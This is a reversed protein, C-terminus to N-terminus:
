VRVCEGIVGRVGVVTVIGRSTLNRSGFGRTVNQWVVCRTETQSGAVTEVGSLSLVSTVILPDDPSSILHVCIGNRCDDSPIFHKNGYYWNFQLESGVATCTLNGPHNAQIMTNLPLPTTIAAGVTLTHPHPPTYFITFCHCM